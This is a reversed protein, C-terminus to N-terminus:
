IKIIEDSMKILDNDHSILLIIRDYKEQKLLDIFFSKSEADLAATPEDFILIDSNKLFCRVQSLKQKEGGSLSSTENDYIYEMGKIFNNNLIKFNLYDIYKKPMKESSSNNLYLNNKISTNLLVPEQDSFAINKMRIKKMDISNINIKNFLVEGDLPKLIGMLISVLTTKGKGNEGTLCYIHNKFFHFSFNKYLLRNDYGFTLNNIDITDISSLSITGNPEADLSLLENCRTFSVEVNKWEKLSNLVSNVNDFFMILYNLIVIFLGVTFNENIFRTGFYYVYFFLFSYKIIDCSFSFLWTIKAYNVVVNLLKKFENKINKILLNEICNSKIFKINILLENLKSFFLNQSEKQKFAQSYLRRNLIFYVSVYLCLCILLIYSVVPMERYIIVLILFSIISNVIIELINELIFNVINQSDDNIRSSLYVIDKNYFFGIPLDQVHKVIDVNIAFAAKYHLKVLGINVFYSAFKGFIYCAALYILFDFFCDLNNNILGKDILAGFFFPELLSTIIIIFNGIIVFMAWKHVLIYNFWIKKINLNYNEM